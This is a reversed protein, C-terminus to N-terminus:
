SFIQNSDRVFRIAADFDYRKELMEESDCYYNNWFDRLCNDDIIKLRKTKFQTFYETDNLLVIMSDCIFYRGKRSSNGVHGEYRLQYDNNTFFYFTWRTEAFFGTYSSKLQIRH